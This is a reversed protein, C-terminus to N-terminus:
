KPDDKSLPRCTSRVVLPAPLLVHQYPMNVAPPAALRQLLLEAARQGMREFPQHVTTLMPPQLSHRDHDDFGVVSIDEPVRLGRAQVEKIFAHALVDKLAFLATPPEELSLFHDAASGVAPHLDDHDPLRYILAESPELGQSLLAERYGEERERVTLIRDTSTLHAIRRHGLHLLHSVADRAATRNDVGVFDCPTDVPYRDLLVLPIGKAQLRRIEPLTEKGGLSWLIAAAIGENEIAELAHREQALSQSWEEGQNDFVVLRYPPKRQRLVRLIGRQILSLAPYHPPQPIVAAITQPATLRRQQEEPMAATEQRMNVWPRRGPQRVILHQEALHALAARITSRDVDFEDALERETPLWEGTKYEQRAIKEQLLHAIRLAAPVRKTMLPNAM